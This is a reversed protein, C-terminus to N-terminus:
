SLLMLDSNSRVGCRPLRICIVFNTENRNEASVRGGHLEFIAQASARKLSERSGSYSAAMADFLQAIEVRSLQLGAIDIAIELEDEPHSTTIVIQHGNKALSIASSLLIHFATSLLPWDGEPELTEGIEVIMQVNKEQLEGQLKSRLSDINLKLPERSLVLKVGKKLECFQRSEDIMQLLAEGEINIIRVCEQQDDSLPASNALIDAASLIRALPASSDSSFQDLMKRHVLEYKEAYHLRLFVEVKALLEDENFPKTLYDDAGAKYGELRDDLNARGSVLIIKVYRYLPNARIKRCVQYGDLGPMMVDLLILDPRFRPLLLLADEGSRAAQLTYVDELIERFISIYVKDDDVILIKYGTNENNSM